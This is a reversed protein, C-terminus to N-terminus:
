SFKLLALVEDAFGSVRNDSASNSPLKEVDETTATNEHSAASSTSDNDGGAFQVGSDNSPNRTITTKPGAGTVTSSFSLQYAIDEMSVTSSEHSSSVTDAFGSSISRLPVRPSAPAVAVTESFEDEGEEGLGEAFDALSDDDSGEDEDDALVTPTSEELVSPEEAITYPEDISVFSSRSMNAPRFSLMGNFSSVSSTRGRCESYYSKLDSM